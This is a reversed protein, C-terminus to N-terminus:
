ASPALFGQFMVFAAEPRYTPVEHGALRITMFTFDTDSGMVTYNTRYGAATAGNSTFWPTWPIAEKLVGRDEMDGVWEENSNYPVCADADGNYILVHLRKVLEPYLTVSGPGSRTFHFGSSGNVGATDRHLAKVVEASGWWERFGSGGCDWAYGGNLKTLAADAARPDHLGRRLFELLWMRDKGTRQLFDETDECNDYVNYTNYPGMQRHMEKLSAQCASSSTDPFPCTKQIRRYLKPSFM